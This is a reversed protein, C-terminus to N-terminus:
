RRTRCNPRRDGPRSSALCGRRAMGAPRSSRPTRSLLSMPSSIRPCFIAATGDGFADVSGDVYRTGVWACVLADLADEYRKLRALSRIESEFPISLGTPGLRKELEELIRRFIKVVEPIREAPKWFKRAKSVKYKVRYEERLLALLAPHPYVEVLQPGGCSEHTKTAVPYGAALFDTVLKWGLEGPREANPTHVACGRAGYARSLDNDAVRRSDFREKAVPMDITVIDVTAGALDRAAQLLDAVPPPSGQFRDQDWDICIGRAHALFSDYSPAVALCHWGGGRSTVLAVGSPETLTWAADIGIITPM